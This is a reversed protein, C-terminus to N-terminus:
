RAGGSFHSFTQVPARQWGLGFKLSHDGGLTHTLFYTGDTKAEWRHRVTQYTNALSRSSVGTTNNSLSQINWLCDAGRGQYLQDTGEYRSQACEGQPPVDQYDLFFGGHVYTFQNNFVLKDSAILTHTISHTPLPFGWPKDSTQQTTA